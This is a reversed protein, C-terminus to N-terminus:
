STGSEGDSAALAPAQLAAGRALQGATWEAGRNGTVSSPDGM